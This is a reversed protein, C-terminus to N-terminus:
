SGCIAWATDSGIAGQGEIYTVSWGTAPSSSTGGTPSSDV